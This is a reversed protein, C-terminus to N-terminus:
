FTDAQLTELLAGVEPIADPTVPKIPTEAGQAPGFGLSLLLLALGVIGPRFIM